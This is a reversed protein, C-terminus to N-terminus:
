SLTGSVAFERLEAASGALGLSELTRGEARLDRGIMAGALVVISDVVPTAAGVRAGVSSALVLAACVDHEVRAFFDSESGSPRVSQMIKSARLADFLTEAEPALGQAVLFHQYGESGTYGLARRVTLLEADVAEILRVVSPTAGHGWFLTGGPRGELTGANALAVPVIDIADYNLLATEWATDAREVFPWVDAVLRHISEYDSAPIAAMLVGGSKRDATLQGPGASRAVYPLCNLEAVGVDDRGLDLLQRRALLAGGGDGVFLLNADERLRPAIRDVFLEHVRAPVAVIVTGAEAVAADLDDAVRVAVRVRGTWNSLVTVGGAAAIASLVEGFEPLDAVVVDRGHQALDAAVALGGPGSGVVTVAHRDPADASM